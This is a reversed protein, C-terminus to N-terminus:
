TEENETDRHSTRHANQLHFHNNSAAYLVAAAQPVFGHESILHNRLLSPSAYEAYDHATEEPWDDDGGNRVRVVMTDGDLTTESGDTHTLLVADGHDGRRRIVQPEMGFEAYLDGDALEHARVEEGDADETETDRHSTRHANRLHFVEEAEWHWGSSDQARDVAEEETEAEVVMSRGSVIWQKM